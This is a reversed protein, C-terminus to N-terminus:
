KHNASIMSNHLPNIMKIAHLRLPCSLCEAYKMSERPFQKEIIIDIKKDANIYKAM